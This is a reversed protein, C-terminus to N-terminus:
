KYYDVSAIKKVTAAALGDKPGHDFYEVYIADDQCNIKTCKIRDGLCCFGQRIFQGDETLCEEIVYIFTGSGGGNYWEIWTVMKTGDPMTFVQPKVDAEINMTEHMSTGDSCKGEFGWYGNQLQYNRTEVYIKSNLATQILQDDTMEAHSRGSLVMMTVIIAFLVKSLKM